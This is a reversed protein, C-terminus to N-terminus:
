ERIYKRTSESIRKHVKKDASTSEQRRIRKLCFTLLSLKTLKFICLNRIGLKTLNYNFSGFGDLGPYTFGNYKRNLIWYVISKIQTARYRTGLALTLNIVCKFIYVLKSFCHADSTILCISGPTELSWLDYNYKPM